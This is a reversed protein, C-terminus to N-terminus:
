LTIGPFLSIVSSLSIGDMMTYMGFNWSFSTRFVASVDTCGAKLILPVSRSPNQTPFYWLM